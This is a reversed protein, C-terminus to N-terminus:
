GNKADGSGNLGRRKATWADFSYKQQQDETLVCEYYHIREYGAPAHAPGAKGPHDSRVHNRAAEGEASNDNLNKNCICCYRGPTRLIKYVLTEPKVKLALMGDASISAVGAGMMADIMRDSFNQRANKGTHQLEIYDMAPPNLLAGAQMNPAPLVGNDGPTNYQPEWGPTKLFHRKLLM